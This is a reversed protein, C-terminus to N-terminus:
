QQCKNSCYIGVSSYRPHFKKGCNVCNVVEKRFEKNAKM